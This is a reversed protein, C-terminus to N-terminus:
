ELFMHQVALAAHSCLCILVHAANFTDFCRGLGAEAARWYQIDSVLAVRQVELEESPQKASRLVREEAALLREVDAGAVRRELLGFLFPGLPNAKTNLKESVQLVERAEDERRWHMLFYGLRSLSHAALVSRKVEKAIRSCERYRWEAARALNREALWKAHYYLRLAAEAVKETRKKEPTAEAAGSMLKEEALLMSEPVAAMSGQRDFAWRGVESESAEVILKSHHLGWDFRDEWMDRQEVHSSANIEVDKTGDVAHIDVAKSSNSTSSAPLITSRPTSSTREPQVAAKPASALPATSGSGVAWVGVLLGSQLTYLVNIWYTMSIMGASFTM